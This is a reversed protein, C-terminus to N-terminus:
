HLVSCVVAVFYHVTSYSHPVICCIQLFTAKNTKALALQMTQRIRQRFALPLIHIVVCTLFM